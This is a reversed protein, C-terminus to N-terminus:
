STGGFADKFADTIADKLEQPTVPDGTAVADALKKIAAEQAVTRRILHEVASSATWSPNDPNNYPNKVMGDTHWVDKVSPPTPVKKVENIIDALTPYESMRADLENTDRNIDRALGLLEFLAKREDDKLEDEPQKRIQGPNNLYYAVKQRMSAMDWGAPDIKRSPAYEKHGCFWGAGAGLFQCLKAALRPYCDRQAATWDGDGGDEAEIGLFFENGTVGRWVGDGAHYSLGAAIVYITGDFGMGIQSLPGPLDSRGYILVNLSPMNSSTREPEPGATHHGMVGYVHNAMPGHGRTKWGPVEVVPYGIERCASALNTFMQGM